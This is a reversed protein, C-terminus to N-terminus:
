LSLGPTQLIHQIAEEMDRLCVVDNVIALESKKLLNSINESKRLKFIGADFGAVQPRISFIWEQDQANRRIHGVLFKFRGISAENAFIVRVHHNRTTHRFLKVVKGFLFYFRDVGGILPDCFVSVQLEYSHFM